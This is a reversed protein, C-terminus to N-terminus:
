KSLSQTLSYIPTIISMAIFGVVVGMFIMLMPEIATSFNKTMDDVEQEYIDALYLLTDSLKGTTEGVELMQAVISPYLVQDHVFFESLREGRTLKASLLSLSNRYALNSITKATVNSAEVIRVDSKLLIGFTRCFNAMNYSRLLKGLVPLKLGMRQVWHRFGLFRKLSFILATIAVIASGFILLGHHVLTNSLFILTRTTIPLTGKFTQLVPLIKPFVYTILLVTIGLTAVIIFAPYVLASIIKRKLDRKKKLEEALYTLNDHLTGSVEGVRIINVAFDGFNKRYKEMGVHLAQGQQVGIYLDEVVQKAFHSTTQGALMKLAQLIPMGAKLLISLRKAFLMQEELSLRSFAFNFRRLAKSPAGGVAAAKGRPQTLVKKLRMFLSLRSLPAITQRASTKM